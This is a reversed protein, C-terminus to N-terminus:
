GTRRARKNLRASNWRPANTEPDEVKALPLPAPHRGGRGDVFVEDLKTPSYAM